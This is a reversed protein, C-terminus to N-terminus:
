SNQAAVWRTTKEIGYAGTVERGDTYEVVSVVQTESGHVPVFRVSRPTYSRGIVRTALSEFCGPTREFINDMLAREAEARTDKCVGYVVYHDFYSKTDVIQYIAECPGYRYAVVRKETSGDALMRLEPAVGM